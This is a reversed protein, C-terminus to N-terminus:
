GQPLVGSKGRVGIARLGAVDDARRRYVREPDFSALPVARFINM